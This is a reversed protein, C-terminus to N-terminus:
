RWRKTLASRDPMMLLSSAILAILGSSLPVTIWDVYELGTLIIVIGMTSLAFFAIMVWYPLKASTSPTIIVPTLRLVVFTIVALGFMSYVIQIIRYLSSPNYDVESDDVPSPVSEFFRPTQHTFRDWLLHSIIGVVLSLLITQWRKVFYRRWNLQTFPQLRERLFDPLNAFLPSKVVEHFVFCLIIGVPVDFWLVGSWNHSHVSWNRFRSFYEFDPTISGIILGTSSFRRRWFYKLPLIIAPHSFTFPM